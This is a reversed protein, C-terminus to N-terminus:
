APVYDDAFHTTDSGVSVLDSLLRAQELEREGEEIKGIKLLHRGFRVHAGIRAAIRHTDALEETACRFAEEAIPDLPNLAELIRGHMLYADARRLKYSRKGARLAQEVYILAKQYARDELEIGALSCAAASVTSAIEQQRRKEPPLTAVPEDCVDPWTALIEELYVRVKEAHGLRLEIQAMQCSVAAARLQEGMSSYLFRANEAHELATCLKMEKWQDTSTVAHPAQNAQAFTLLAIGWHAEAAYGFPTANNILALTIKYHELAADLQQLERYAGALYLHLLMLEHKQEDPIKESKPLESVACVFDQQAQLFKRQEFYCQGRLAILRWRQPSPVHLLCLDQLFQLAHLIDKHVLLDTVRIRLDEYSKYLLAKDETEWSQQALHHKLDELSLNLRDALFSLSEHSPAVRNREIQSIFSTSYHGSAVDALSLHLQKRAARIYGGLTDPSIQKSPRPM